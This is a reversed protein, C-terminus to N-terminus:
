WHSGGEEQLLSYGSVLLSRHWPTSGAEIPPSHPLSVVANHSKQMIVKQMILMEVTYPM